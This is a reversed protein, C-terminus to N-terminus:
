IQQNKEPALFKTSKIGSDLTENEARENKKTTEQNKSENTIGIIVPEYKEIKIRKLQWFIAGILETPDYSLEFHM